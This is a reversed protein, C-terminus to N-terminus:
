KKEGQAEILTILEFRKELYAQTQKIDKITDSIEQMAKQNAIGRENISSYQWIAAGGVAVVFLLVEIVIRRFSASWGQVSKRVASLEERLEHQQDRISGVQDPKPANSVKRRTEDQAKRTARQVEQLRAIESKVWEINAKKALEEWLLKNVDISESVGTVHNPDGKKWRGPM